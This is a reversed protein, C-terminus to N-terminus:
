FPLPIAIIHESVFKFSLIIEAWEISEKSAGPVEQYVYKILEGLIM